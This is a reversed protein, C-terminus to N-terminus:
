EATKQKKEHSAPARNLSARRIAKAGLKERIADTARELRGLKAADPRDTPFLDSEAELSAVGVGLLRVPRSGAHTRSRLLSLATTYMTESLNTPAPLTKRHTVITFDGYRVKLFVTRGATKQHRLRSAVRDSLYRLATELEAMLLECIFRRREGSEPAVFQRGEGEIVQVNVPPEELQVFAVVFGTEGAFLGDGGRQRFFPLAGITIGDDRSLCAGPHHITKRM